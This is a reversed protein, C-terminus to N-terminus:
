KTALTLWHNLVVISTPTKNIRPLFVVKNSDTQLYFVDIWQNKNNEGKLNCFLSPTNVLGWKWVFLGYKKHYIGCFIEM